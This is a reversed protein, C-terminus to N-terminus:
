PRYFPTLHLIPRAFPPVGVDLGGKLFRIAGHAAADPELVIRRKPIGEHDGAWKSLAGGKSIAAIGRFGREDLAACFGVAEMEEESVRVESTPNRYGITESRGDGLVLRLGSVYRRGYIEVTSVFVHTRAHPVSLRSFFLARSGHTFFQDIPTLRWSATIWRLSDEDNGASIFGLDRKEDLLNWLSHGLKWIRERNKVATHNQLGRVHRYLAEWRGDLSSAHGRAEFIHEFESQTVRHKWFSQPLVINACRKSARRLRCIELTSMDEFIDLILEQPIKFFPDAGPDVSCTDRAVAMEGPAQGFGRDFLSRLEDIELPDSKNDLRGQERFLHRDEGAAVQVDPREYQVTGGYDHGFNLINCQVPFSRLIDFLAQEDIASDPRVKRFITWCCKHFPFGWSSTIGPMLPDPDVFRTRMLFVRAISSNTDSTLDADVEIM